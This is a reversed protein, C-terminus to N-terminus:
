PICKLWVFPSLVAAGRAPVDVLYEETTIVSADVIGMIDGTQHAPLNSVIKPDVEDLFTIANGLQDSVLYWTGLLKADAAPTILEPIEVIEVMGDDVNTAGSAKYPARFLERAEMAIDPTCIMHTPVLGLPEGDAGRIETTFHRRARRWNAQNFGAGTLINPYVGKAPNGIDWPHALDFIPLGDPGVFKLPRATKPDIEGEYSAGGRRLAQVFRDGNWRRIGMDLARGVNIVRDSDRRIDDSDLKLLSHWKSCYAEFGRARLNRAVKNGSWQILGPLLDMYEMQHYPGGTVRKHNALKALAGAWKRGPEAEGGRMARLGEEYIKQYSRRIKPAYGTDIAM